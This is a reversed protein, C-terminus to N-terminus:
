FGHVAVSCDSSTISLSITQNRTKLIWFGKLLRYRPSHHLYQLDHFPRKRSDRLQQQKGSSPGSRDLPIDLDSRFTALFTQSIYYCLVARPNAFAVKGRRIRHAVARISHKKHLKRSHNAESFSFMCKPKSSCDDVQLKRLM